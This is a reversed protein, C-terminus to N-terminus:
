YLGEDIMVSIGSGGGASGPAGNVGSFTYFSGNWALGAAGAGGAGGAGYTAACTAGFLASAAAYNTDADIPTTFNRGGKGGAGGGPSGGNGGAIFDTASGPDPTGNAGTAGNGGGAGGTASYTVGGATISTTGGTSGAGGIILQGTTSTNFPGGSYIANGGAGGGGGGYVRFSVKNFGPPLTINGTFFFKGAAPWDTRNVRPRSGGTGRLSSLSLSGSAPFNGRSFDSKYWRRNRLESAQNVDNGFAAAIDSFSVSGSANIYTVNNVVSTGM